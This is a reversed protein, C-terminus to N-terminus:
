REKNLGFRETLLRHYYIAMILLIGGVCYGALIDTPYHVNLIVRSLGISVIIIGMLITIMYKGTVSKLNAAIIYALFGFTMISLMAHGSPFSYGLADLAENLSPRDRKMIEKIGKNVLHTILIGVPYVIMTAYYRKRWFVLLSIVLTTVIGIASGLKTYHSFFTLSSETQLGKVLGRVYTDMVTVGGAHVRWAVIGFVAFLLGICMVEYQHLKKKM